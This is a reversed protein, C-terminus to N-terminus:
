KRPTRAPAGFIAARAQTLFAARARAFPAGDRAMMRGAITGPGILDVGAAVEPGIGSQLAEAAEATARDHHVLATALYRATGAMWRQDIQRDDPALAYRELYTLSGGVRLRLEHALSAFRWAEGRRIRGAMIGDGWILRASADLNIDFRQELRAGAFPIVPDWQCCLEGDADVAYDHAIAAAAAASSPHVQLASQSVLVVRAGSAVRVSQRLADGGFIGPGTCGLIVYAADDLELARGVRWPPEAYAHALITRGRRAEFVLELRAQRGIAAPLRSDADAPSRTIPYDPLQIQYNPSRTASQPARSNM